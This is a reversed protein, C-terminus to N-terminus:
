ATRWLVADTLWSLCSFLFHPFRLSYEACEVNIKVPWASLRLQMMHEITFQLMHQPPMKGHNPDVQKRRPIPWKWIIIFWTQIIMQKSFSSTGVWLACPAKVTVLTLTCVCSCHCVKVTCPLGGMEMCMLAKMINHNLFYISQYKNKEFM